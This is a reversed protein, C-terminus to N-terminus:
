RGAGSEADPTEGLMAPLVAQPQGEVFADLDARARQALPHDLADYAALRRALVPFSWPVHPEIPALAAVVARDDLQGAIALVTGIRVDEVQYLAFHQSIADLARQAHPRSANAIDQAVQLAHRAVGNDVFADDRLRALGAALAATADDFRRQRARLWATILAAETPHAARLAEIEPLAAEDGAAALSEAVLLRDIHASPPASQRRWLAGGLSRFLV